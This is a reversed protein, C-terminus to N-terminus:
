IKIKLLEQWSTTFRQSKREQKMMWNKRMGQSGMKITNSGWKLNIKDFVNMIKTERKDIAEELIPSTFLHLQKHSQPEIGSLMVGARKFKYGDKFITKLGHLAAKTLTPLYSSPPDLELTISNYYQPDKQNFLSTHIFITVLKALSNQERLKESAISVYLSIAEILDAIKTVPIGFSRTSAIIKKPEPANDIPICSIGHLELYTREGQVTMKKRVVYRNFYKFDKATYIGNMRLFKTYQRGVGWIDEVDVKKLYDDINNIEFENLVGNFEPTKKVIKNLAKALTKTSAIGISIPIGTSQFVKERIKRCYETLNNIKLNTFNLFAEDISYLEIDPTFENLIGMVRMSLDAYLTFNSSYVFVMGSNILNKLEFFPQGMKIGLKKAENSRAIVCGDNNSLVIVPKGNLKPNFLRECSAYFNNCDVIAFIKKKSYNSLDM